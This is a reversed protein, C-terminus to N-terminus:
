GKFAKFAAGVKGFFGPKSLVADPASEGQKGKSKEVTRATIYVGALGTLTAYASSLLYFCMTTYGNVITTAIVQKESTMLMIDKTLYLYGLVTGATLLGCIWTMFRITWPRTRKTFLDENKQQSKEVSAITKNNQVVTDLEAVKTKYAYEALFKNEDTQYRKLLELKEAPIANLEEATLGNLQVGTKTAISKVVSQEEDDGLVADKILDLGKGTLWDIAMATLSM